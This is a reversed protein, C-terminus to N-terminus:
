RVNVRRQGGISRLLQIRSMRKGQVDKFNIAELIHEAPVLKLGRVQTKTEADWLM